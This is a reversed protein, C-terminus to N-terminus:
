FMKHSSFSLIDTLTDKWLILPLHHQETSSNVQKSNLIQIWLAGEYKRNIFADSTESVTLTIKKSEGPKLTVTNDSLTIAAPKEVEEFLPIELNELVSEFIETSFSLKVEKDVVNKITITVPEDFQEINRMIYPPNVDIPSSVANDVNIQGSGQLFWSTYQNNVYNMLPDSSHMIIRKIQQPTWNPHAQKILAVCGAVFPTAMSTGDWDEYKNNLVASNIQKGPACIEPKMINEDASFSPGTSSFDSFIINSLTPFDISYNSELLPKIINASIGSVFICPIFEFDEPREGDRTNVLIGGFPDPDYNYIICGIAGAKKANLNKLQFSLGNNKPGRSIFAINGKVELPFEHSDGYGCDILQYDACKDGTPFPPSYRARYANIRIPDKEVPNFVFSQHLRDDSASVQLVFDFTGPADIPWPNKKHRTGANGAAAVVMTGAKNANALSDYYPNGESNSESAGGHGLSLNIVDCGDKVSQDAAKIINTPNAGGGKKSFVKYVYLDSEPAVGVKTDNDPNRGSTIGAVHTGHPPMNGGFGSDKCDNTGDVLDYGAKVRSDPGVGTPTFDIHNYDIGSDIIGVKVNQGTLLRDSKSKKEWVEQAHISRTAIIREPYEEHTIAHIKKINQNDLLYRINYGATEIAIGNYVYQYTHLLSMPVNDSLSDFVSLQFSELTDAYNEDISLRTSGQTSKQILQHKESYPVAADEFFELILTQKKSSNMVTEYYASDIKETAAM